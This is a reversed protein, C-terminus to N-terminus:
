RDPAPVVVVMCKAREVVRRSVDVTILRELLKMPATGVVVVDMDAAMDVLCDQPWGPALELRVSVDPHQAGLGALSESMLRRRDALGAEDDTVFVAGEPGAVVEVFCHVVTLPLGRRSALDYAFEAAPLSQDTGDVGVLVGHRPQDREHPRFVVVPCEAQDSVALGVSGLMLSRVTGRGRSGLVIMRATRSLDILLSRPDDILILRHVVPRYQAGAADADHRDCRHQVRDAAAQLLDGAGVQIADIVAPDSLGPPGLFSVDLAIAHVLVLDRGELVAQDIAWDLAREATTSGDVGVVITGAPLAAVAEARHEIITAPRARESTSM